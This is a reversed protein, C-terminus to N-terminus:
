KAGRLVTVQRHSLTKKWVQRIERISAQLKGGLDWLTQFSHSEAVRSEYGYTLVRIPGATTAMPQIDKALSDQLWM